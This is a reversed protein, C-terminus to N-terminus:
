RAFGSRPPYAAVNGFEEVSRIKGDV